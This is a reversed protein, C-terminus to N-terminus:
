NEMPPLEGIRERAMLTAVLIFFTMVISFLPFQLPAPLSYILAVAPIWVLWNTLLMTPCTRLWFNRNLSARLRSWSGAQDVWRLAIVYTPVFWIPSAIFQDVVVKKILTAADNGNGFLWSQLDFFLDIEMGRYGWFLMLFGIRKKRGKAPLTGMVWQVATPMIVAALVTSAFSFGFSWHTKFEGVAQWASAVSPLYFYSSVLAVVLVNLLVCPMRNQRFAAGIDSFISTQTLPAAM